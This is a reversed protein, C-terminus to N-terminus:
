TQKAPHGYYDAYSAMTESILANVPVKNIIIGLACGGCKQILNITDKLQRMTTKSWEAVIIVGDVQSAIVLPDSFIGAPPTDIWVHDYNQRAFELLEATQTQFRLCAAENSARIRLVDYGGMEARTATFIEQLQTTTLFAEGESCLSAYIVEKYQNYKRADIDILLTKKGLLASLSALNSSVHTKGSGQRPSTIMAIKGGGDAKIANVALQSALLKNTFLSEPFAKAFNQYCCNSKIHVGVFDKETILPTQTIFNVPLQKTKQDLV